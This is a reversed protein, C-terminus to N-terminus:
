IVDKKSLISWFKQYAITGDYACPSLGDCIAPNSAGMPPVHVHADPLLLMADNSRPLTVSLVLSHKNSASLGSSINIIVIKRLSWPPRRKAPVRDTSKSVTVSSQQHAHHRVNDSATNPQL